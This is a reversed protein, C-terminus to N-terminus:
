EILANSRIRGRQLTADRAFVIFVGLREPINAGKIDLLEVGFHLVSFDAIIADICLDREIKLRSALPAV